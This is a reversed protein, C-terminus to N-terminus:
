KWGDFQFRGLVRGAPTKVEVTAVAETPKTKTLFIWAKGGAVPQVSPSIRRELDRLHDWVIEVRDASRDIVVFQYAFQDAFRSASCKLLLDVRVPRDPDGLAGRISANRLHADDEILDPFEADDDAEHHSIERQTPVTRESGNLRVAARQESVKSFCCVALEIRGAAAAQVIGAAPWEVAGTTDLANAVCHRKGIKATWSELEGPKGQHPCVEAAYASAAAMWTFLAVRGM